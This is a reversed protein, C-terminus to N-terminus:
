FDVVLCKVELHLAEANLGCRKTNGSGNTSGSAARTVVGHNGNWLEEKEVYAPVEGRNATVKTKTGESVLRTGNPSCSSVASEVGM